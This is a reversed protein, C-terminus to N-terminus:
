KQYVWMDTIGANMYGSELYGSAPFNATNYFMAVATFVSSYPYASAPIMLPNPTFNLAYYTQTGGGDGVSVAKYNCTGGWSLQTGDTSLDGDGNGNQVAAQVTVGKYYVSVTYSVASFYSASYEGYTSNDKSYPLSASNMTVVAGHAPSGRDSIDVVCSSGIPFSVWAAGTLTYYQTLGASAHITLYPSAPPTPSAPTNSHKCAFFSVTLACALLLTKKDM